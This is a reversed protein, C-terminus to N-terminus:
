QNKVVDLTQDFHVLGEVKKLLVLKTRPQISLANIACGESCQPHSLIRCLARQDELDRVVRLHKRSVVHVHIYVTNIMLPVGAYMNM